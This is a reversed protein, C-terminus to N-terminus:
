AALQQLQVTDGHLRVNYTKITVTEDELCQGTQLNFHQKYLPSAVVVKNTLSGIIGRSIVNAESFPCHNSIAYLKEDGQIRDRVRFIAVQEDNFLACRGMDPVIDDINCINIWKSM